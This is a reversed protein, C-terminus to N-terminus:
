GGARESKLEALRAMGLAQLADTWEPGAEKWIRSLEERTTAAKIQDAWPVREITVVTGSPEAQVRSRPVALARTKRWNRVKECLESAAWGEAVDVDYLTAKAQGVPLHIVIAKCRCVKPMPVYRMTPIDWIADAHAYVALQIAIENWGYSLDRGTKLDGIALEAQCEPCPEPLRVIRDFTGAVGFRECIVKREIMGPEVTLGHAALELTYAAVDKDWPAPISPAEGRDVQETFAHLATGLNAATKTGAVEKATEVLKNLTDKDDLPTAATSAYLDPRMTIGKIAMRQQWMSLTYTDSISKAFTTARTWPKVRGSQRDPFRYRGYRDPKGDASYAGDNGMKDPDTPGSPPSSFLDDTVTM